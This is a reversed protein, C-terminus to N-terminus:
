KPRRAYVEISEHESTRAAGGIQVWEGMALLRTKLERTKLNAYNYGVNHELWDVTAEDPLLLYNALGAAMSVLYAMKEEDTNGPVDLKWQVEASPTFAAEEPFDYALGSAAHLAADQGPMARYEYILVNALAGSNFDGIEPAIYEIRRSGRLSADRNMVDVVSKFGAMSTTSPAAYPQQRDSAVVNFISAAAALVGILVGAWARHFAPQDGRFPLYAFLLSGFVAPMSVFPNLGAGRFFLFLPAAEALWVLKWDLQRVGNPLGMFFNLVFAALSCEVMVHGVHWITMLLHPYSQSWPLHRNADPNWTVYYYYLYNFNYILFAGVAIAIPACMWACNVALSRRRGRANWFRIALLPALMLILYVPATARSLCALMAAAGSLLWPFRADTEYTALYWVGCLSTFIYLSLDMRFDQLGGNWYYIRAFSIFPLTLCFALWAQVGRYRALYWYVSLALLTLWVSQLWIGLYRSPEVFNALVTMELWPLAVNGSLSRKIGARFGQARTTFAIDALQKTYSCSDYFPAHDKYFDANLHMAYLAQLLMVGVIAALAVASSRMSIRAAAM